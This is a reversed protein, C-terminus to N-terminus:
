SKLVLWRGEVGWSSLTSLYNMGLVNLNKGKAVHVALDRREISGVALRDARGAFEHIMGNATEVMQDRRHSYALGVDAATSQDVTTITAGSDVLFHVPQGNVLGEVWFHGDVAMPIRVEGGEVMPRGTVETKLREAVYTFNDRFTFLIFGAGFIVVWAVALKILRGIPERRGILSGLVLMMAILLYLSGMTTHNDLM